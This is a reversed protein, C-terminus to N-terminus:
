GDYAYDAKNHMILKDDVFYFSDSRTEYPHRVMEAIDEDSLAPFEYIHECTNKSNPMCFGFTFDFSKLMKEKFYHREIMRFNTIPLPGVQFEVSAGVSELKLFEATFRYRVFRGSDEDADDEDDEEEDPDSEPKAIEFLTTGSNIDRIKFRTFDIKYKNKRGDVFYCGPSTAAKLSLIDASSISDMALLEEETCGEQKKSKAQRNLYGGGKKKGKSASEPM